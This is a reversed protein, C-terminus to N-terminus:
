FLIMDRSSEIMHCKWTPMKPFILKRQLKTTLIWLICDIVVFKRKRVQILFLVHLSHAFNRSCTHQELMRSLPITFEHLSASVLIMNSLLYFEASQWCFGCTFLVRPFTWRGFLKVAATARLQVPAMKVTNKNRASLNPWWRYM